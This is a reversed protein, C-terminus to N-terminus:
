IPASLLEVAERVSMGPAIGRERATVNVHSLVGDRYISRSDGISASTAAAAGAPIGKADLDPLRSVGASDMGVGGDSFFVGRLPVSIINDPKGRFLAAHSGTIAIAGEDEPTLMPAADLCIVRAHGIEKSIDYRKGGSIPSLEGTAIDAHRMREAADRVTDGVKCGIAAAFRNVRSIIGHALMHDGDAIHCTNVDATAAALGIQELYTIGRVGANDKGVGADNLIVGRLGWKGAHFANYEGGYSGSVIVQGYHSANVQSSAPVTFINGVDAVGGSM